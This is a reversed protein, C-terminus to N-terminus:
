INFYLYWLRKPGQDLHSLSLLAFEHNKKWAQQPQADFGNSTLSSPPFFSPMKQTLLIAVIPVM